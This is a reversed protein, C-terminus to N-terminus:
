GMCIWRMGNKGMSTRPEVGVGGEPCFPCKLNKISHLSMRQTFSGSVLGQM